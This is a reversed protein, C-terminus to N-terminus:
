RTFVARTLGHPPRSNVVIGRSDPLRVFPSPALRVTLIYNFLSREDLQFVLRLTKLPRCHKEVSILRANTQSEDHTGSRSATSFLVSSSVSGPPPFKDAIIASTHSKLKKRQKTNEIEVAFLKRARAYLICADCPHFIFTTLFDGRLDSVIRVVRVSRPRSTPEDGWLSKDTFLICIVEYLYRCVYEHLRFSLDPSTGLCLPHTGERIRRLFFFIFLLYM